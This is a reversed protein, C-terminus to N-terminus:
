TGLVERFSRFSDDMVWGFILKRCRDRVSCRVLDYSIFFILTITYPFSPRIKWEGRLFTSTPFYCKVFLSSLAKRQLNLCIIQCAIFYIQDQCIPIILIPILQKWCPLPPLPLKSNWHQCASAFSLVPNYYNKSGKFHESYILGWFLRLGWM